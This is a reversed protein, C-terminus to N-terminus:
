SFFLRRSDPSFIPSFVSGEMSVQKEGTGNQLRLITQTRDVSTVFSQWGPGDGTEGKQKQGFYVATTRCFGGTAWASDTRRSKLPVVRKGEPSIASRQAIGHENPAGGLVLHRLSDVQNWREPDM